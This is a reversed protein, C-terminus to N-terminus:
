GPLLPVAAAAWYDSQTLTAHIDPDTSDGGLITAGSTTTNGAVSWRSTGSFASFGTNNVGSGMVAFNIAGEPTGSTDITALTGQNEELYATGFSDVNDYTVCNM